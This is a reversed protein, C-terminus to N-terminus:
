EDHGDIWRTTRRRSIYQTPPISRHIIHTEINQLNPLFSPIHRKPPIPSTIRTIRMRVTEFMVTFSLLVEDSGAHGFELAMLFGPDEEGIDVLVDGEVGQMGVVVRGDWEVERRGPCVGQGVPRPMNSSKDLVPYLHVLSLYLAHNRTQRLLPPVTLHVSLILRRQRQDIPLVGNKVPRVPAHERILCPIHPKQPIIERPPIRQVHRQLVNRLVHGYYAIRPQSSARQASRHISLRYFYSGVPPIRRVGLNATEQHGGGRRFDLGEVSSMHQFVRVSLLIVHHPLLHQPRRM